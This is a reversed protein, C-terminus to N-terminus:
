GRRAALRPGAVLGLRQGEVLRHRAVVELDRDGLLQRAQGRELPGEAGGGEGLAPAQVRLAERVLHAEVGAVHIAEPDQREVGPAGPPEHDVGAHVGQTPRALLRDVEQVAWVASPSFLMTLSTSRYMTM